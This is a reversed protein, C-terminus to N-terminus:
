RTAMDAAIRDRANDRLALDKGIAYGGFVVLVGAILWRNKRAWQRSQGESM